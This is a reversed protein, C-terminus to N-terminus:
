QIKILFLGDIIDPTIFTTMANYSGSVPRAGDALLSFRWVVTDNYRLESCTTGDDQRMVQMNLMFDAALVKSPGILVWVVLLILIVKRM